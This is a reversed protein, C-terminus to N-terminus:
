ALMDVLHSQNLSMLLMDTQLEIVTRRSNSPMQDAYGPLIMIAEAAEAAATLGRRRCIMMM